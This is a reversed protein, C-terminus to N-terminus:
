SKKYKKLSCAYDNQATIDMKQEAFQDIELSEIRQDHTLYPQSNNSITYTQRITSSTSGKKKFKFSFFSDLRRNTEVQGITGVCGINGRTLRVYDLLCTEPEAISADIKM